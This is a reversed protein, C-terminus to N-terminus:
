CSWRWIAPAAMARVVRVVRRGAPAGACLRSLEAVDTVPMSPHVCLVQPSSLVLGIPTFAKDSDYPLKGLLHPAIAYTSNTALLLTYGDPDSQAVAAHGITGSAGPRNEVVM